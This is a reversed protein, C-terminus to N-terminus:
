VDVLNQLARSWRIKRDLLWCFELQYDVDLSGFREPKRDRFREQQAGILHDFLTAIDAIPVFRVNAPASCIDAKPPLASMGNQVAFTQKHGLASVWTLQPSSGIQSSAIQTFLSLQKEGDPV